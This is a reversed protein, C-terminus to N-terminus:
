GDTGTRCDAESTSGSVERCIKKWASRSTEPSYTKSCYAQAKKTWENAKGQNNTAWEIGERIDGKWVGPIEILSPHPEAVVFCGRRIAEIARNASKYPAYSPIIVIDANGLERLLTPISWPIATGTNSVVRLSVGNLQPKLAKLDDINVGHGFWLVNSGNCHPETEQFEYPDPIVHASYGYSSIIEKMVKTPCTIADALDMMKRYYTRYIWNDCIDVIIKKGKLQSVEELEWPQPKAYILVDATLDNITAGIAKAPIMARYRYSAAGQGLRNIFSIRM